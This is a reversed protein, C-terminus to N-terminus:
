VLTIVMIWMRLSKEKHRRKVKSEISEGPVVLAPRHFTDGALALISGSMLSPLKVEVKEMWQQHDM